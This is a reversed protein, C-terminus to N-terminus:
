RVSLYSDAYEVEREDSMTILRLSSEKESAFPSARPTAFDRALVLPFSRKGRRVEYIRASRLRSDSSSRADPQTYIFLTHFLM